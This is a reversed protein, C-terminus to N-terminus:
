LERRRWFGLDGPPRAAALCPKCSTPVTGLFAQLPFPWPRSALPDLGLSSDYALWDWAQKGQEGPGERPFWSSPEQALKGREGEVEQYM